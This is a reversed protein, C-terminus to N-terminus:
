FTHIKRAWLILLYGWASNFLWGSAIWKRNQNGILQVMLLGLAREAKTKSFRRCLLFPFPLLYIFFWVKKAKTVASKLVCVRAEGGPNGSKDQYL